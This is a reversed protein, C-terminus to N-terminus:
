APHTAYARNSTTSSCIRRRRPRRETEKFRSVTTRRKAKNPVTAITTRRCTVPRVRFRGDAAHVLHLEIGAPVPRGVLDDVTPGEARSTNGPTAANPPRGVGTNSPRLDLLASAARRVGGAGVNRHGRNG